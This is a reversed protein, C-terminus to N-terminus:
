FPIDEVQPSDLKPLPGEDDYPVSPRLAEIDWHYPAMDYRIYGIDREEPKFELLKQATQQSM